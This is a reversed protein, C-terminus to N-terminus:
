YNTYQLICTGYLKKSTKGQSLEQKLKWYFVSSKIQNKGCNHGEDYRLPFESTHIETEKQVDLLCTSRFFSDSSKVIEIQKHSSYM